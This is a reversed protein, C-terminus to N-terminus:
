KLLVKQLRVADKQYPGSHETISQLLNVAEETRGSKVLALSTYWALSQGLQISPDLDLALLKELIEQQRDVEMSALLYYLFAVQNQPDQELFVSTKEMSELYYGRQYLVIAEESAGRTAQNFAMIVPDTRPEFFRSLIRDSDWSRMFLTVLIALCGAMPLLFYLWRRNRTSPLWGKKVQKEMVELLRTRFAEEDRRRLQESILRYAASVTEYEERLAPDSAVRKKFSSAEDRNMEGSLYKIILDVNNM